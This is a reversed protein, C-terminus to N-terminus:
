FKDYYINEDSKNGNISNKCIVLKIMQYFFITNVFLIQLYSIIM